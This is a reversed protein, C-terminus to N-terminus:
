RKRSAATAAAVARPAPASHGSLFTAAASGPAVLGARLLVRIAAIADAGARGGSRGASGSSLQVLADPRIAPSALSDLRAAPFFRSFRDWAADFRTPSVGELFSRPATQTNVISQVAKVPVAKSKAKLAPAPVPAPAPAHPIPPAVIPARPQEHDDQHSPLSPAAPNSSAGQIPASPSVAKSPAALNGFLRASMAENSARVAALRESMVKIAALQANQNDAIAAFHAVQESMPPASFPLPILLDMQPLLQPPPPPVPLTQAAVDDYDFAPAYPSLTSLSPINQDGVVTGAEMSALGTAVVDPGAFSSGGSFGGGLLTSRSDPPLPAFNLSPLSLPLSPQVVVPPAIAKPLPPLALQATASMLGPPLSSVLPLFGVASPAVQEKAVLGEKLPILEAGLLAPTGTSADSAASRLGSIAAGLPQLFGSDSDTGRRNSAMFAAFTDSDSADTPLTWPASALSLQPPLSASVLVLSSPSPPCTEDGAATDSGDGGDYARAISDQSACASVGASRQQAALSRARLAETIEGVLSAAADGAARALAGADDAARASAADAAARAARAAGVEAAALSETVAAGSAAAVHSNMGVDLTSPLADSAGAGALTSQAPATASPTPVPLMASLSTHAPAQAPGPKPAPAFAPAPAPSPALTSPARAPLPLPPTPALSQVPGRRRESAAALATAIVAPTARQAAEGTTGLCTALFAAVVSHPLPPPFVAGSSRAASASAAVMALIEPSPRPNALSAFTYGFANGGAHTMEERTFSDEDPKVEHLFYCERATCTTDRLWASCYKTCGFGARLRVGSDLLLGDLALVASCAEEASGFTVYATTSGTDSPVFLVRVVNGYQGLYEVRRLVDRSAIASPLGRLQVQERIIVRVDVLHARSRSRGGAGAAVVSSVRVAAGGRAAASSRGAGYSSGRSQVAQFAGEAETSGAPPAPPAQM